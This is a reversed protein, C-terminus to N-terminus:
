PGIRLPREHEDHQWGPGYAIVMVWVSDLITDPVVWHFVSDDPALGTAITDLRYTSDFRLFLSVSDCHPRPFTQWAILCTDGPNLLEGGTPQLLRVAEVELITIKGDGALILNSYGNYNVDAINVALNGPMPQHHRNTWNGVRIFSGPKYCNYVGVHQNTNWVIEQIGDGDLDGCISRGVPFPHQRFGSDVLVRAYQNGGVSEWMYLWVMFLNGGYGRFFPIFFEPRGNRTVDNGTFVDAGGNVVPLTDAWVMEYQNDGTNEFVNVRSHVAGVFNMRGNLNFDGFGLGYNAFWWSTWVPRAGNSGDSELMLFGNVSDSDAAVLLDSLGDCDLDGPLHLASWPAYGHNYCWALETPPRGPGPSRLMAVMCRAVTDGIFWNYGVLELRGDGNWDIFATPRFLGPNLGHPPPWSVTDSHIVESRNWPYFRRLEWRIPNVALSDLRGATYAMELLGDGTAAAIPIGWYPAVRASRELYAVLKFRLETAPASAPLAVALLLLGSVLAPFPLHGRGRWNSKVLAQGAQRM